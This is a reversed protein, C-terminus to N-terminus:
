SNRLEEYKNKANILKVKNGRGYMKLWKILELVNDITLVLNSTETDGDKTVVGARGELIHYNLNQRTLGLEVALDNINIM